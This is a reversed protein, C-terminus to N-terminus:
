APTAPEPAPGLRVKREGHSIAKLFLRLLRINRFTHTAGCSGCYFTQRKATDGIVVAHDGLALHPVEGDWSTQHAAARDRMSAEWPLLAWGAEPDDTGIPGLDGPGGTRRKPPLLTPSSVVLVGTALSALALYDLGKGCSCHLRLAPQSQLKQCPAIVHPRMVPANGPDREAEVMAVAGEGWALPGGLLQAPSEDPHEADLEKLATRALEKPDTNRKDDPMAITQRLDISM